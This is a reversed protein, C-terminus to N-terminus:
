SGSGILIRIGAHIDLLGVNEGFELTQAEYETDLSGTKAYHYNAELYVGSYDSNYYFLGAGFGFALAPDYSVARYKPGMMGTTFKPNDVGAHVKIYPEFDSESIFYYKFFASPNYLRHKGDSAADPADIGMETYTFGVGVVMNAKLFYGMEVGLSWGMKAGLSDHFDAIGGVPMGLGGYFCAELLDKEEMEEQAMAVSVVCLSLALLLVSLKRM